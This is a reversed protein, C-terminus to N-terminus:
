RSIVKHAHLVHLHVHLNKIEIKKLMKFNILCTNWFLSIMHEWFGFHCEWKPLPLSPIQLLRSCYMTSNVQTKVKKYMNLIIMNQCLNKKTCLLVYGIEPNNWFFNFVWFIYCAVIPYPCLLQPFRRQRTWNWKRICAYDGKAVLVERFLKDGQGALYGEVDSWGIWQHWMYILGAPGHCM